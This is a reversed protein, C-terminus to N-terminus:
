WGTVQAAVALVQPVQLVLALGLIMWSVMGLRRSLVPHDRDFEARWREATGPAPTLQQKSGDGTVLCARRLGYTSWAVEIRAGGGLTSSHPAASCASRTDTM